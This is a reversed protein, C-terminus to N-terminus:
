LNDESNLRKLAEEAIKEAKHIFEYLKQKEEFDMFYFGHGLIDPTKIEGNKNLRMSFIPTYGVSPSYLGLTGSYREGAGILDDSKYGYLLVIDIQEHNIICRNIADDIEDPRIEDIFEDSLNGHLAYLNIQHTPLVDYEELEESSLEVPEIGKEYIEIKYKM